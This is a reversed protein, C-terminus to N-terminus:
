HIGRVLETWNVTYLCERVENWAL